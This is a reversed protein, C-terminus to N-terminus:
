STRRACLIIMARAVAVRAGIIDLSRARGEIGWLGIM